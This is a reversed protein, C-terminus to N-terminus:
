RDRGRDRERDHKDRGEQRVDQFTNKLEHIRQKIQQVMNSMNDGSVQNAEESADQAKQAAQYAEDAAQNAANIARQAAQKDEDVGSQRAQAISRRAEQQAEQARRLMQQELEKAENARQLLSGDAKFIQVQRKKPSSAIARNMKLLSREKSGALVVKQNGSGQGSMFVTTRSPAAIAQQIGSPISTFGAVLLRSTSTSYPVVSTDVWGYVPVTTAVQQISQIDPVSIHAVQPEQITQYGIATRTTVNQVQLGAPAAGNHWVWAYAAPVTAYQINRAGAPPNSGNHWVWGYAAPVTTYQINRAGPPPNSGNHWVWAYTAPVTTYQINQAGAPPNSGNHTVWSRVPAQGVIAQIQSITTETDQYPVLESISTSVDPYDETNEAHGNIAGKANIGGDSSSFVNVDHYSWDPFRWAPVPSGNPFM